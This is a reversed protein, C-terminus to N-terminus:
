AAAPAAPALEDPDSIILFLGAVLDADITEPLIDATLEKLEVDFKESLLEETAKVFAASDTLNVRQAGSEDTFLVTEGNEDREAYADILKKREEEFVSVIAALQKVNYALRLGLRLSAGKLSTQALGLANVLQLAENTSLTLKM